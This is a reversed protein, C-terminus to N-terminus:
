FELELNKECFDFRSPKAQTGDAFVAKVYQECAENNTSSDWTLKVTAGPKIGSGVNFQGWSKGNESVLIKTIRSDSGNHVKFSYDGAQSVSILGMVLVIGTSTRTAMKGLSNLKMADEQFSNEDTQGLSQLREL